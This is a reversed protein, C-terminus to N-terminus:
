PKFYFVSCPLILIVAAIQPLNKVLLRIHFEGGEQHAVPHVHCLLQEDICVVLNGIYCPLQPIGIHVVKVSVKLLAAM